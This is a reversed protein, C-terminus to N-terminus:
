IVNAKLKIINFYKEEINEIYETINYQFNDGYRDKFFISKTKLINPLIKENYDEKSIYLELIKINNDVKKVHLFKVIHELKFDSNENITKLRSVKIPNDGNLVQLPNIIEIKNEVINEVVYEDKLYRDENKFKSYTNKSNLYFNLDENGNEMGRNKIITRLTNKDEFSINDSKKLITYFKDVYEKNYEGKRLSKLLDSQINDIEIDGESSISDKQKKLLSNEIRSLSLSIKIFFSLFVRKIRNLM